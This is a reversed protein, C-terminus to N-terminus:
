EGGNPNEGGSPGPVSAPEETDLAVVDQILRAALEHRTNDAAHLTVERGRRDISAFEPHDVTFRSGDVMVLQFPRFPQRRVERTFQNLNM